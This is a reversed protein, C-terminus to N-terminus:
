NIADLNCILQVNIKDTLKKGVIGGGEWPGTLKARVVKLLVKSKYSTKTGKM